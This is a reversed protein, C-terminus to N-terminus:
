VSLNIEEVNLEIRENILENVVLEFIQLVTNEQKINHAFEHYYNPNEEAMVAEDTFEINWATIEKGAFVFQNCVGDDSANDLHTNLKKIIDAHKKLIKRIRYTTNSSLNIITRTQEISDFLYTKYVLMGKKDIEISFGGDDVGYFGCSPTCSYGFLINNKRKM